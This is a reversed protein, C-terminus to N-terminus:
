KPQCHLNVKDTFQIDDTSGCPLLHFKLQECGQASPAAKTSPSPPLELLSPGAYYRLLASLCVVVQVLQSRQPMFVGRMM